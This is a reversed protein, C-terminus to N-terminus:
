YSVLIRVERSGVRDVQEFGTEPYMGTQRCCGLIVCGTTDLPVLPCYKTSSPPVKVKWELEHARRPAWIEGITAINAAEDFFTGM